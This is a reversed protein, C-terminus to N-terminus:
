GEGRRATATRKARSRPRWGFRGLDVRGRADFVIGEAELRARQLGEVEREGRGSIEGRANIVRHWPVDDSEDLANLAWGIQRAAGPMGALAAVQGYTAVRGEPVRRVVRYVPSWGRSSGASTGTM